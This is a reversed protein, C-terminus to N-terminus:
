DKNLYEMLETVDENRVMWIFKWSEILFVFSDWPQINLQDRVDKPIVIQWKPWVTGTWSLKINFHCKEKWM